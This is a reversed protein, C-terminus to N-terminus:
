GTNAQISAQISAQILRYVLRYVLRCVLQMHLELTFTSQVKIERDCSKAEADLEGKKTM